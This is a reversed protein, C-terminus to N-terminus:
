LPEFVVYATANLQNTITFELWMEYVSNARPQQSSRSSDSSDAASCDLNLLNETEAEETASCPTPFLLQAGQHSERFSSLTQSPLLLSWVLFSQTPLPFLPVQFVSVHKPWYKARYYLCPPHLNCWLQICGRFGASVNTPQVGCYMDKFYHM